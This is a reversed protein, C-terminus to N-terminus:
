KFLERLMSEIEAKAAARGIEGSRAFSAAAGAAFGQAVVKLAIPPLGKAELLLQWEALKQRLTSERLGQEDLISAQTM